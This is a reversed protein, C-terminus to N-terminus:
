LWLSFLTSSTVAPWCREPDRLRSGHLVVQSRFGILNSRQLGSHIAVLCKDSHGM